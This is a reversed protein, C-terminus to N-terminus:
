LRKIYFVPVSDTLYVGNVSVYFKYGVAHMAGADVELIVPKGRRGGVITATKEDKSLHVHHRNMKKLGDSMISDLFKGVTGHYLKDPPQVEKFDMEVKTSHGQNARIKTEDESFSYRMKNDTAVVERLETITIPFGYHQCAALLDNVTVWGGVELTLGLAEPQHRLHKSLFKSITILTAM